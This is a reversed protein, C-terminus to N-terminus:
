KNRFIQSQVVLHLLDRVGYGKEASAKVIREIEDRDSFGPERGTAFTLLKKTLTTALLDPDEALFDRFERFDAFERGDALQGSSDVEPGLRYRVPRGRITADVKDGGGLSRYRDRFGGIPNFSELAFGPPDIKQHCAKCSALSRHKDLLERLTSAGRIDPEVGPVGPPPPPPPQGLIREMVWAGRKVPSSNTGNATVKLLSAQTLLGGRISDAPLPVKRVETGSVPSVGYHEALRSNLMAFESKVLCDVPLNSQILERVFARTELPMSYRLYQDFEPFLSKDPMTFDIERLDLWADTFDVLFREFRRDNLLRETQARLVVSDESLRKTKALQLLERDPTTRALFYSLRAALAYDDLRGADERLYLFRPSCFVATVATRLADEFPAGDDREKQFLQVYPAIDQTSVPRRFAAEAVRELSQEVDAHEDESIIKFRPKYWPKKRDAPNGPPIERRDIGDFILRHGRTPFEEALPGELTVKLIALGPGQYDDISERQYRKPDSIGFPEIQIMYNADILTEFEVSSPEGPPFAFFRYIPKESGPAFSTGGVSFTIPETSQYAYGTVHVRYRGRERVGSNRIMGSPYGGGEFRVIAGDDLQKWVKGVFREAERSGLYSAEIRKPQPAESTKAVAVDFVERAADMYRQLHVMSLGLAEGVNDFEHSRGDEPLMDALDLRTGFLDNLTNQYERRNLRRLRSGKSLAHAEHLPKRLLTAFKDRDQLPPQESEEPPMEHSQVRDFVREWRAFTAAANLDSGLADLDLGGENAGGAHCDACFRVFFPNLPQRFDAAADAVGVAILVMIWVAVELM